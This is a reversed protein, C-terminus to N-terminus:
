SQLKIIAIEHESLVEMQAQELTKEVLVNLM